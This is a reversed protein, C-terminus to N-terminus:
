AHASFAKGITRLISRVHESRRTPKDTSVDSKTIFVYNLDSSCVDSSGYSIRMEGRKGKGVSKRDILRGVLTPQGAGLDGTIVLFGEGQALGYGLYSMAKRHTASEFYFHPDPTLQFPRGSLGYFQDYM